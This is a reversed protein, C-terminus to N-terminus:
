DFRAALSKLDVALLFPCFYGREGPLDSPIDAVGTTFIDLLQKETLRSFDSISNTPVGPTPKLPATVGPITYTGPNAIDQWLGGVEQGIDAVAGFLDLPAPAAAVAGDPSGAESGAKQQSAGSSSM